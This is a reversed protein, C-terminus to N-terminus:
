THRRCVAPKLGELGLLACFSQDSVKWGHQLYLATGRANKLAPKGALLVTYDVSAKTKSVLTVRAVKASAVSALGSRAQATIIKAFAKGDQVLAIKKAAPTTGRFFTTWSARIQTIASAQHRRSAAAPAALPGLGLSTLVLAVTLVIGMVTGKAARWPRAGRMSSM